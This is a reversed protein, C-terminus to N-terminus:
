RAPSGNQAATAAPMFVESTMLASSSSGSRWGLRLGSSAGVRSARALARVARLNDAMSRVATVGGYLNRRMVAEAQRRNPPTALHVHADILGPMLYQGRLDVARATRIDAAKASSDPFVNLIREGAVLIDMDPRAQM